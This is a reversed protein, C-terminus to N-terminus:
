RPDGVRHESPLGLLQLCLPAIDVSRLQTPLTMADPGAVLFLSTSELAHLGGHSAGGLHAKGGEVEFECGPKATVWLTAATPRTSRGPSGSSRTRITAGCSGIATSRRM